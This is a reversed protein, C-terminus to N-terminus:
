LSVNAGGSGRVSQVADVINPYAGCRCINGSMAERVDDDDSGIPEDLLAVASMIQGSTCYGCQFGDHQIFARQMPHLDEGNAIGEITRVKKDQCAVALTLCSNVRRGDIHVTCAGCQGHDCGKKTGTLGIRERLADLLTVRSDLQLSHDEGNVNLVILMGGSDSPALSAPATQADAFKDLSLTLIFASAFAAALFQRRSLGKRSCSRLKKLNRLVESLDAPQTSSGLSFVHAWRINGSEDLVLLASHSLPINLTTALSAQHGSAVVIPVDLAAETESIIEYQGRSGSIEVLTAGLDPFQQLVREYQAKMEGAVPDWQNSSVILVVTHGAFESIYKLSGDPCELAVKSVNRGLEVSPIKSLSTL